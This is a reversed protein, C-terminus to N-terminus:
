SRRRGPSADRPGAEPVAMPVLECHELLRQVAERGVRDALGDQVPIYRRMEASNEPPAQGQSDLPLGTTALLCKTHHYRHKIIAGVTDLAWETPRHEGLSDLLLVDVEAVDRAAKRGAEAVAPDPDHQSRLTSLLGQYDFYLGSLGKEVLRRLTAVALHAQKSPSGGHFLLGRANTLPFEDAFRQARRLAATLTNYQLRERSFNGARFTEFRAESFVPPLGLAGKAAADRRERFCHCRRAAPGRATMVEVWGTGQCSPCQTSSAM